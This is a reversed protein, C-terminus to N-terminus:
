NAKITDLFDQAEQIESDIHNMRARYADGRRQAAKGKLKFTADFELEVRYRYAKLREIAGKYGSKTPIEPLYPYPECLVPYRTKM